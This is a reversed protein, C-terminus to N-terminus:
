KKKPQKSPSSLSKGQVVAIIRESQNKSLTMTGTRGSIVTIGNATDKALAGTGSLQNQTKM